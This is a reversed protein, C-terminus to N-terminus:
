GGPIIDFVLPVRTVKSVDFIIGATGRTGTLHPPAICTAMDPCDYSIEIRNSALLYTFEVRTTRTSVGPIDAVVTREEGSGDKRLILTDAVIRGPFDPNVAFKAPLSDGGITRLAYRDRVAPALFSASCSALAAVGIIFAPVVHFRSV